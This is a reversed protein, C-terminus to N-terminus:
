PFPECSIGNGKGVGVRGGWSRELSKEGWGTMISKAVTRILNNRFLARNYGFNVQVINPRAHQIHVHIKYQTRYPKLLESVIHVQVADCQRIQQFRVSLNEGFIPHPLLESPFPSSVSLPNKWRLGLTLMRIWPFSMGSRFDVLLCAGTTNTNPSYKGPYWWNSTAAIM